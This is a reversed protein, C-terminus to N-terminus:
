AIPVNDPSFLESIIRTRFNFISNLKRRVVLTNAIIGLFSFPVVYEIEDTMFTGDETESFSHRHRWMSYPGKKQIDTFSHPEKVDVIETIWRSKIGFIPTVSYEINLGSYIDRPLYKTLVIFDMEPPTILKLNRPDSFFEWAKDIAVPIVMERKFKYVKM